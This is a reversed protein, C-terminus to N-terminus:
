SSGTSPLGYARRRLAAPGGSIELGTWHWEVARDLGPIPLEAHPGTWAFMAGDRFEPAYFGRASALVSDMRLTLTPRSAYVAILSVAFALGGVLVAAATPIRGPRLATPRSRGASVAHERQHTTM